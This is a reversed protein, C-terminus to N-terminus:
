QEQGNFETFGSHFRGHVKAAFLATQLKHFFGHHLEKQDGDNLLACITTDRSVLSSAAVDSISAPNQYSTFDGRGNRTM